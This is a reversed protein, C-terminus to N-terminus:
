EFASTVTSSVAFSIALLPLMEMSAVVLCVCSRSSRNPCVPISSSRLKRLILTQSDPMLRLPASSALLFMMRLVAAVTIISTLLSISAENNIGNANPSATDSTCISISLALRLDPPSMVASAVESMLTLPSALVPESGTAIAREIPTLSVCILTVPFLM